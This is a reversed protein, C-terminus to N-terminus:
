GREDYIQSFHELLLRHGFLYSGGIKQLLICDTTYDLFKAYNWPFKGSFFLLVRLNFHKTLIAGGLFQSIFLGIGIGFIGLHIVVQFLNTLVYIM